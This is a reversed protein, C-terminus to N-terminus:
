LAEKMEGAGYYQPYLKIYWRDKYKTIGSGYGLFPGIGKPISIARSLEASRIASQYNFFTQSM